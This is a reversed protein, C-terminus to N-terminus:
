KGYALTKIGKDELTIFVSKVVQYLTDLNDSTQQQLFKAHDHVTKRLEPM